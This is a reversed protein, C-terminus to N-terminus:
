LDLNCLLIRRIIALNNSGKRFDPDSFRVVIDPNQDSVRLNCNTRMRLIFKALVAWFSKRSTTCNAIAVNQLLVKSLARHFHLCTSSIAAANWGAPDVKSKAFRNESCVTVTPFRLEDVFEERIDVNVPRDYYYRIRDQIQYLTIVFGALVLLLWISRRLVSADPNAVYRLGGVSVDFCFEQLTPPSDQTGSKEDTGDDDNAVNSSGNGRYEVDPSESYGDNVTGSSIGHEVVMRAEAFTM